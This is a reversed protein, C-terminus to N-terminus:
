KFNEKQSIIFLPRGKTQAFIKGIYAGIVGMTIMILGTSFITLITISAWGPALQHEFFNYIIWLIFLFGASVFAFGIYISLTLLRDTQSIIGNVAHQILKPLSYSSKGEFRRDHEIEIFASSFGLWQLIILYPRYYDNISLYADAVRRTILSFSGVKINSFIDRGGVLWNFVSHFLSAFADRILSHKREKKLTYVIDYGECAKAYLNAIYKPNDQLDCDIVIIFNGTANAIGAAIAYHQGFNRSLRIGKIKPNSECNKRIKEWSSDPSGDEVLIVEFEPSVKRAEECIRRVLEDVIASAKYVPSIISLSPMTEM